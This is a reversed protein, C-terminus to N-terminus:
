AERPALKHTPHQGTLLLFLEWTALPIKRHNTKGFEVEYGQWVRYPKGQAPSVLLAADEQSLGAALRAATVEASTPQVIREVIPKM